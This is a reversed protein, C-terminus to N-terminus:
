VPQPQPERIRLEGSVEDAEVEVGELVGLIDHERLLLFEDSGVAVKSGAYPSFVVVEGERVPVPRSPLVPDDDTRPRTHVMGDEAGIVVPGFAPLATEIITGPGVAVVLGRDSEERVNDPLLVGGATVRERGVVRVLM